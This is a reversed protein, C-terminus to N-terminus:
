AFDCLVQDVVRTLGRGFILVYQMDSVSRDLFVPCRGYSYSGCLERLALQYKPFNPALSYKLRVSFM